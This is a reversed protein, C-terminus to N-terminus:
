AVKRGLATPLVSAFLDLLQDIGSRHDFMKRVRGEGAQGLRTRLDADGMLSRLAGTLAACDNAPVLMGTENHVILEPIGSIDTSICALAQSQAEMLVNPLGDRDGDGAILSPLVFLDAARYAALVEDQSLAGRWHIRDEIGLIQAQKKLASLESGGGIHEFRWHLDAPLAALADLLVHYGKKRVARGVSLLRVPRDAAQGERQAPAEPSPAFRALDLGHYVLHVRSPDPALSRLHAAGSATCTVVWSADALKHTLDWDPSTWIDKAHASCTWGLGTLVSAYETVSAPTHIFHAHLWAIDAPLEAALVLAQGFRRVRNRSFDRRLDAFWQARARRYGPRHRVRWWARAVRAVEQHLYEPLYDVPAVIEGHVPHTTKDTPHRLSVIRLHLGAQELARIEQAIFTESLRPYGKLVFAITRPQAMDSM